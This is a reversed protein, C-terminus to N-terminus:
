PTEEPANGAPRESEAPPMNDPVGLVTPDEANVIVAVSTCPHVPLLDYAIVISHGTMLRLGVPRGFPTTPEDYLWVILPLPPVIGYLKPTVAPDNGDQKVNVDVPKKDPVGAEVPANLKLIVAVSTCPHVPM